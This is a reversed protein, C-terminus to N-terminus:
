FLTQPKWPSSASLAPFKFAKPGRSASLSTGVHAAATAASSAAKCFPPSSRPPLAPPSKECVCPRVALLPLPSRSECCFSADTEEDRPARFSAAAAASNQLPEVPLAKRSRRALLADAPGARGAALPQTRRHPLPASGRVSLRDPIDADSNESANARVKKGRQKTFGAGRGGGRRDGM